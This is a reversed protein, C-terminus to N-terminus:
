IRLKQHDHFFLSDKGLFEQFVKSDPDDEEEQPTKKSKRNVPTWSSINNMRTKKLSLSVHQYFPYSLLISLNSKKKM